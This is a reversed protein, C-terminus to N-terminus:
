DRLCRVTEFLDPIRNKMVRFASGHNRVGGASNIHMRLELMINGSALLTMFSSVSPNVCYTLTRYHFAESSGSGKAQAAIFATENHKEKLRKIIDDLKYFAIPVSQREINVKEAPSVIAFKLNHRSEDIKVTSYLAYRNSKCVLDGNKKSARDNKGLRKNVNQMKTIGLYTKLKM